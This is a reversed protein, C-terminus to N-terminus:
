LLCENGAVDIAKYDLLLHRYTTNGISYKEKYFVKFNINEQMYSYFWKLNQERKQKKTLLNYYNSQKYLEYVSKCEVFCNNLVKDKITKYENIVPEYVTKFWEKVEDSSELYADTRDKIITPTIFGETILKGHEKKYQKMYKLLYNFLVTKFETRFKEEKFYSNAPFVKDLNSNLIREENTFTSEFPIDKIRRVYSEDIRGDIKPKQNCELIFTADIIIQTINSYNARSNIKNGGTLEKIVTGNLKKNDSEIEQIVVLRKKHMNAIQPNNGEKLPKTFSESNGKYYYNGLTDGLLENIVGKGNGGNGNAIFFMEMRVGYLATCMVNLYYQKVEPTPFISNILNDLKELQKETSEEHLYGTTTLIYDERNTTIQKFEKLCFCKNKFTYLYGNNDFEVHSFDLGALKQIFVESIGKVKGANCVKIIINNVFQLSGAKTKELYEIKEKDSTNALEKDYKVTISELLKYLFTRTEQRVKNNLIHYQNTDQVWIVGNYNYLSLKGELTKAVYNIGQNELFVDALCDDTSLYELDNDLLFYKCKIRYYQEIDSQKCYYYFTGITSGSTSNSWLCKFGHEDYKETCKKSVHEAIDYLNENEIETPIYNALSWIVRCWKDYDTYYEPKLINSLEFICKKTNSWTDQMELISNNNETITNKLKFKKPKSGSKKPPDKIFKEIDFYPIENENNYVIHLKDAYSWMGSLVEIDEFILVPKGSYGLERLPKNTKFFIHKGHKKTLSKFYPAYSCLDNVFQKSELSYTDFKEETFDVDIQHVFCTDICLQNYNNILEKRQKFVEASKREVEKNLEKDFGGMFDINKPKANIEKYKTPAKVKQGKSNTYVSINAPQYEIGNNELFEVVSM